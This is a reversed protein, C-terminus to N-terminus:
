DDTTRTVQLLRRWDDITLREPRLTPDIGVAELVERATGEPVMTSRDLANRLQKRPNKFTRSVLTFFADIDEAPVLPQHRPTIRVVASVVKPPPDFAEPPVTFLVEAAAYVQIGISLLSYAGPPAAIEEAVERQVMVVMDRPQPPHELFRRIIPNAAFYPLNGAVRYGAYGSVMEGIDADRADAQIIQVHEIGRFRNRCHRVMREDVELALIHRYREALAATLQGTGPGIEIVLEDDAAGVAHAIRDLISQDLLFHQGLSKRAAPSSSRSM